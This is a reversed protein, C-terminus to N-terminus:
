EHRLAMLPDAGSARWAPLAGAAFATIMLVASVGILTGADRPAVGFLLGELARTSALSVLVGAALGPMVLRFTDRFVMGRIGRPSAGIALRVGLERKRSVVGYAMVGYLGVVSLILAIAAAVSLLSAALTSRSMSQAVLSEMAEVNAIPVNKDLAAAASRMRTITSTIDGSRTRMVVRMFRPPAFVPAGELSVVPFYVSEAAPRDFGNRRVDEAVGVVRYHPPQYGGTRLGKGVPDEGPWLRRAVSESVIVTGTQSTRWEDLRGRVQIGLVDFYNPRVRSVEVCVGGNAVNATRGEVNVVSCGDNGDLPTSTAASVAEIDPDNELAAALERHYGDIHQESPYRTRPLFVNMTVLAAPEFGPDVRLLRWVSQAMLAAGSALVVSMAVQAVVLVVRTRQTRVTSTTGPDRTAMAAGRRFATFATFCVTSVLATLLAAAITRADVRVDALRPINEPTLLVLARLAIYTLGLALAAALGSLLLSEVMAYRALRARTAGLALRTALERRRTEARLLFLNTVNAAAVVFVLSLAAALIWITRTTPGLISDRLPVVRTSFATSEMFPRSYATPFLVPLRGTLVDLEEQAAALAVGPRLRGIARFTHQNVAPANANLALPMWVDVALGSLFPRDPPQVAAAVVGLIAVDREDLRIRRGVVDPASDFHTRWLRDTIVVGGPGARQDYGSDAEVFLRGLVPRAGLLGLVEHSVFSTLVREAVVDDRGPEAGVTASQNVYIGIRELTRTERRFHFYGATSLNWVADPRVRPVPSEIRVLRDVDAYPLPRLVVQDLVAFIAVVAAMGLALAGVGVSTFTTSRRLARCAHALDRWTTELWPLGRQDRLADMAQAAGAERRGHQAALEMHLRMEEALDEDRRRPRVTGLLRLMWERVGRM